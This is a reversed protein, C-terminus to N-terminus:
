AIEPCTSKELCNLKVIVSRFSLPSDFTQGNENKHILVTKLAKATSGKVKGKGLYLDKLISEILQPQILIMSGYDQKTIKIGLYDGINGEEQIGFKNSQLKTSHELEETDSGLLISIDVYILLM